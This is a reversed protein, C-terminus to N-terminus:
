SRMLIRVTSSLLQVRTNIGSVFNELVIGFDAYSAVHLLSTDIARIAEIQSTCQERTNLVWKCMQKRIDLDSKSV